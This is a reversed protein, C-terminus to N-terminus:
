AARRGWQPATFHRRDPRGQRTAFRAEYEPWGEDLRGELLLVLARHHRADADDPALGLGLDLLALAELRRGQDALTVALNGYGQALGPRLPWWGASCRRPRRWGGQKGAAGHGSQGDCRCLGAAVGAVQPVGGEAEELRGVQQLTAGLNCWIEPREADLVLAVPLIQAAEAARDQEGLAAALNTLAMPDNPALAAQRRFAAEAEAPQGRERLVTGLAAHLAAMGPNLELARAYAATAEDFRRQARLVHGLNTWADTFDARSDIAARFSAEAEDLRHLAQLSAGRNNLAETYGPREALAAAYSALADEHRGLQGLLMGHNALFRPSRRLGLAQEVLLVGRAPDGGRAPSSAWCICRMPTM